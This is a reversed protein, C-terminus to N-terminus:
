GIMAPQHQPTPPALKLAHILTMEEGGRPHATAEVRPQELALTWTWAEVGRAGPGLDLTWTRTGPRLNWPWQCLDEEHLGSKLDLNGTGCCDWISCQSKAMAYGDDDIMELGLIIVAASDKEQEGGRALCVVRILQRCVCM